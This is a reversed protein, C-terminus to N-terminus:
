RLLQAHRKGHWLHFTYVRNPDHLEIRSRGSLSGRLHHEHRERRQLRRCEHGHHDRQQLLDATNTLSVTMPMSTTGKPVPGFQLDATSLIVVPAPATGTGSLMVSQTNPNANDAFNLSASEAGMTSPKFTLTVTCSSGGAVQSATSCTAATIAFDSANTGTITPNSSFTLAGKGTNMLTVVMTPSTVGEPVSGFM